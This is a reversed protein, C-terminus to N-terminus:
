LLFHCTAPCSSTEPVTGEMTRMRGIVSTRRGIDIAETESREFTGGTGIRGIRGIRGIATMTIETEGTSGSTAGIVTEGITVGIVTTADIVTEM